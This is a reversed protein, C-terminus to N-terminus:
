QTVVKIVNTKVVLFRPNEYGAEELVRKFDAETDPKLDNPGEIVVRLFAEGYANHVLEANVAKHAILYKDSYKKAEQLLGIMLPTLVDSEGAAAQEHIRVKEADSMEDYNKESM